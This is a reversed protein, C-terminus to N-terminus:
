NFDVAQAKSLIANVLASSMPGNFEFYEESDDLVFWIRRNVPETSDLVFATLPKKELRTFSLAKDIGNAERMIQLIKDGSSPQQGLANFYELPTKISRADLFGSKSFLKRLDEMHRDLIFTIQSADGSPPVLSLGGAVSGLSLIRDLSDTPLQLQLRRVQLHICRDCDTAAPWTGSQLTAAEVAFSGLLTGLALAAKTLGMEPNEM